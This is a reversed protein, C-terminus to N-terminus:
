ETPSQLFRKRNLGIHGRINTPPNRGIYHTPTGLEDLQYFGALKKKRRGPLFLLLVTFLMLGLRFWPNLSIFKSGIPLRVFRSSVALLLGISEYVIFRKSVGYGIPMEDKSIGPWYASIILGEQETSNLEKM